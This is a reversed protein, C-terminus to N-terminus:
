APVVNYRELVIDIFEPLSEDDLGLEPLVDPKIRDWEPNLLRQDRCYIDIALLLIAVLSRSQHEGLEHMSHLYRVADCIFGPLCWHRAVLYGVVSHNTNFKQDEDQLDVWQGPIGLRMESCYTPFRQLLLPVGCAHFIGALYAQDPFINCVAVREEAILMALQGVAQSRAWFAEYVLRDKNRLKMGSSCQLAIAQVLNFTQKVGVAHLIQELTEFPQHQRYAPNGVVKFLMATMGPDQNITRALLRVDLEKRAMLQTMEELVRPQPPLKVGGDMIRKIRNADVTSLTQTIELVSPASSM